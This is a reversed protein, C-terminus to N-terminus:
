GRPADDHVTASVASGSAGLRRIPEHRPRLVAIALFSALPAASEADLPGYRGVAPHLMGIVALVDGDADIAPLFLGSRQGPFEAASPDDNLDRAIQALRGRFARGALGASASQRQGILREGGGAGAVYELMTGGLTPALIVVTRASTVHQAAEAIIRLRAASSGSTLVATAAALSDSRWSERGLRRAVWGMGGIFPGILLLLAFGPGEGARVIVDGPETGTLNWLGIAILWAIIAAVVGARPGILLSAAVVVAVATVPAAPGLLASLPILALGYAVLFAALLAADGGRARMAALGPLAATGRARAYASGPTKRPGQGAAALRLVRLLADSSDSKSVFEAGAARAAPAAAADMSYIVVRAGPLQDALATAADIGKMMPMEQDLVVVDPKLALALRLASAGDAAEGVLEFHEDSALLARLRERITLHDDAILVRARTPGFPTGTPEARGPPALARALEAGSVVGKEQLLEGLRVRRGTIALERQEKLAQELQDPTVVGAELLRLGLAPGLTPEDVLASLTAILDLPGFPKTIYASAGAASARAREGTTNRATLMVVPIQATAPDAKLAECVAFGDPGDDGFVVDLLVADPASAKTLEIARYGTEAELVNWGQLSLTIRVIQRQAALDDAILVTRM